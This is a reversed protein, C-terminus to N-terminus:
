PKVGRALSVSRASRGVSLPPPLAVVPRRSPWRAAFSQQGGTRQFGKIIISTEGVAYGLPISAQPFSSSVFSSSVEPSEAGVLVGNVTADVQVGANPVDTNHAVVPVDQEVAM